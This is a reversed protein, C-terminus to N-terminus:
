PYCYRIERIPASERSHGSEEVDFDYPSVSEWDTTEPVIM